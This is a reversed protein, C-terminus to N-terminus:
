STKGEMPAFRAVLMHIIGYSAAVYFVFQPGAAQWLLGGLAATIISVVHDLSIGTSLTTTIEEQSFAISRLYMVRTLGMQETMMDTIYLTFILWVAASEVLLTGSAFGATVLGYAAYIVTMAVAQAFIMKRLGFRGIWRGVAPTFFIGILAGTMALFAITDAGQGLIRILVWPGFVIMSQKKAGHVSALIYYFIYEKRFLFRRRKTVPPNVRRHLFLYLVFVVAFLAAAILFFPRVTLGSPLEGPQSGRISFKFFGTRFGFFVLLSGCLSFATRVGGFLGMRRGVQAPDAAGREGAISIAVGDGVAMYLHQGMSFTFLFLCMVLFPPTMLGLVVLGTVALTMCILAIRTDPLFSLAAVVLFCILGPLERPFELFGRTAADVDYVEAFYNSLVGDSLALAFGM